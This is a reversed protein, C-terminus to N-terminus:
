LIYLIPPNPYAKGPNVSYINDSTVRMGILGPLRLTGGFGGLNGRAASGITGGRRLPRKGDLDEGTRSEPDLIWMAHEYKGVNRQRLEGDLYERDPRYNSHLYEHLSIHTSAAM